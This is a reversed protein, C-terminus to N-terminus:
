IEANKLANKLQKINFVEIEKIIPDLGM